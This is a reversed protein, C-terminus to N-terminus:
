ENDPLLNNTLDVLTELINTKVRYTKVQILENTNLTMYDKNMTANLFVTEKEGNGLGGDAQFRVSLHNGNMDLDVIKNINVWDFVKPTASLLIPAIVLFILKKM